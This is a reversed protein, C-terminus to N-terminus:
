YSYSINSLCFAESLWTLDASMAGGFTAMSCRTGGPAGFFTSCNFCNCSNRNRAHAYAM